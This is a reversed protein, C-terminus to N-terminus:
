HMALIAKVLNQLFVQTAYLSVSVTEGRHQIRHLCAVNGLSLDNCDMRKDGGPLRRQFLAADHRLYDPKPFPLAFLHRVESAIESYFRTLDLRGDRVEGGSGIKKVSRFRPASYRGACNRAAPKEM